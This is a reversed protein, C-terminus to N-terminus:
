KNEIKECGKNAGKRIIRLICGYIDFFSYLIVIIYLLVLAALVRYDMIIEKMYHSLLNGIILVGLLISSNILDLLFYKLSKESILSVITLVALFFGHIIAIDVSTIILSIIFLVKLTGTALMVSDWFDMEYLFGIVKTSKSEWSFNKFVFFLFAGAVITFGSALIIVGKLQLIGTIINELM